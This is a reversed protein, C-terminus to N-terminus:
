IKIATHVNIQDMQKWNSVSNSFYQFILQGFSLFVWNESWNQCFQTLFMSISLFVSCKHWKTLQYKLIKANWYPSQFCISWILLLGTWRTETAWSFHKNTLGRKYPLSSYNGLLHVVSTNIAWDGECIVNQANTVIWPFEARAQRQRGSSWRNAGSM